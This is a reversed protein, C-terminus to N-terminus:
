EKICDIKKIITQGQPGQYVAMIENGETQVRASQPYMTTHAAGLCSDMDPLHYKTVQTSGGPTLLTSVLVISSIGSTM